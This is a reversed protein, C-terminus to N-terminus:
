PPSPRTSIRAPRPKAHPSPPRLPRPRTSCAAIVRSRRAWPQQEGPGGFCERVAVFNEPSVVIAFDEATLPPERGTDHRFAEVFPKYGDRPLDGDIAVVARAVSAAIEHAARFSLGERRVLTDALETITICSRSINEAVRRGDVSRRCCRRWLDLV